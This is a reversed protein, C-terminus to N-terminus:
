GEEVSKRYAIFDKVIGDTSARGCALEDPLFDEFGKSLYKSLKSEDIVNVKKRFEKSLMPKMINWIMGFRLRMPPYCIRESFFVRGYEKEYFYKISEISEM